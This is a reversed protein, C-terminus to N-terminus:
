GGLLVSFPSTKGIEVEGDVPTRSTLRIPPGADSTWAYGSTTGPDPLLAVAVLRPGVGSLSPAEAGTIAAFERQTLPFDEIAAIQGRLRGFARPSVGPVVLTVQQGLRLYAVQAAEVLLKVQLPDDGTAREEIQLIPGGPPLVSGPLAHVAVIRGSVPSTIETQSGAQSRVIAVATSATVDDGSRALLRDVTGAVPSEIEVIEGPYGLVGHVAMTRPISGLFGWLGAMVATILVVFVAVWGRPSALLMPSDLQDPQRRRNLAKFRFKM